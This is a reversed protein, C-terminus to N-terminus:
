LNNIERKIYKEALIELRRTEDFVKIGFGVPEKYPFKKFFDVFRRIDMNFSILLRSLLPIYYYYTRMSILYILREFEGGHYISHLLKKRLGNFKNESIKRQSFDEYIKKLKEYCELEPTVEDRLFFLLHNKALKEDSSSNFYFSGILGVIKAASENIHRPLSVSDHFDEHLVLETIDFNSLRLFPRTILSGGSFASSIETGLVYNERNKPFDDFYIYNPDFYSFPLVDNFFGCNEILRKDKEKFRLFNITKRLGITKGFKKIERILEIKAIEQKSFKGKNRFRFSFKFM